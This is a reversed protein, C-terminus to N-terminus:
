LAEEDREREELDELEARDSATFFLPAVAIFAMIAVAAMAFILYGPLIFLTVVYAALVVALAILQAANM